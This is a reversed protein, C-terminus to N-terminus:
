ESEGNGAPPQMGALMPLLAPALAEALRSLTDGNQSDAEIQAAQIIRDLSDAQMKEIRVQRDSLLEIQKQFGSILPSLLRYHLEMNAQQAQILIGAVREFSMETSTEALQNQSFIPSPQIEPIEDTLTEASIGPVSVLVEGSDALFDIRKIESAGVTQITELVALWRNRKEDSTTIEIAESNTVIKVTSPKHYKLKALFQTKTLLEM